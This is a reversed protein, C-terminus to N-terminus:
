NWSSRGKDLMPNNTYGHRGFVLNVGVRANISKQTEPFPIEKGKEGIKVTSYYLLAYDFLVYIQLPLPGPYFMLGGGPYVNGKVQYTLGANLSVFSYPQLYLSLNFSQRVAKEWFVTRSMLGASLSRSLSYSVGAHLVPALPTTFKDHKVRYGVADELEDFLDELVDQDDKAVDYNVGDFTYRGDFSISNLDKKWFIMGLNNLSASVTFREGIQYVAGLDIAVGPNNFGMGYNVWDKIEYDDFDKVDVDKIKDPDDEKMTIDVPASSYFNGKVEAEWKEKGTNLKFKDIKSAYAAQGVIPKVNFGISLRENIRHSYGLRFQMYGISQLRAPSFDLNTPDPFGEETMKFLDSPLANIFSLHQSAGFSLYGAGLRLGFGIIDFDGAVNIMTAKKGISKRLKDYDYQEEVPTYWKDGHQQLIDKLALDCILDINVNVPLAVYGNARPQFAPNMQATQPITNMFYLSHPQRVQGSLSVSFLAFFLIVPIRM